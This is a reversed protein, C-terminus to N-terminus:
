IRVRQLRPGDQGPFRGISSENKLTRCAISVFTLDDSLFSLVGNSSRPPGASEYRGGASEPGVAEGVRREGSGVGGASSQHGSASPIAKSSVSAGGRALPGASSPGM